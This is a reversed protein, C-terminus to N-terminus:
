SSEPEDSAEGSDTKRRRFTAIKIKTVAGRESCKDRLNRSTPHRAPIRKEEELHQAL